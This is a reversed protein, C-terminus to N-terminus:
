DMAWTNVPVLPRLASFGHLGQLPEYAMNHFVVPLVPADALETALRSEVVARITNRNVVAM